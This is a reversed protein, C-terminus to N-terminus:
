KSRWREEEEWRGLTRDLFVTDRSFVPLADFFLQGFESHQVLGDPLSCIVFACDKASLLRQWAKTYSAWSCIKISM